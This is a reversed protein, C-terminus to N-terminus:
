RNRPYIEWQHATGVFDLISYQNNMAFFGMGEIESVIGILFKSDSRSLIVVLEEHNNGSCAVGIKVVAFIYNREITKDSKEAFVEFSGAMHGAVSATGCLRIRCRHCSCGNRGGAFVLAM